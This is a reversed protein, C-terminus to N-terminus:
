NVGKGVILFAALLAFAVLVNGLMPLYTCVRSMQVTVSTGGVTVVRDAICSGSVGLANSTDFSGSSITITESGIGTSLGAAKAAEYTAIESPQKQFQCNLENAAKAIACSVADGDCVFSSGCSGGFSGGSGGDGSDGKCLKSAPNQTCFSGFTATGVSSGNSTTTTGSGGGSGIITVTTTTNTTTSCVGAACTTTTGSEVGKVQTGGDSTPTTTVQKDAGFTTGKNCDVTVSVGNVEGPCKGAPLPTPAPSTVTVTGSGSTVTSTVTSGAVAASGQPGYATPTCAQGMWIPNNGYIMAAGAPASGGVNPIAMVTNVAAKCGDLCVQTVSTNAAYFNCRESYCTLYNVPQGAQGVCPPPPPCDGYQSPIAQDAEIVTGSPVGGCCSATLTTVTHCSTGAGNATGVVTRPSQTAVLHDAYDQCAQQATPQWPKNSQIRYQLCQDVAMASLYVCCLALFVVVRHFHAVCGGPCCPHRVFGHHKGRQSAGRPRKSFPGCRLM